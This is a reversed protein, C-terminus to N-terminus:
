TLIVQRVILDDVRSKSENGSGNFVVICTERERGM